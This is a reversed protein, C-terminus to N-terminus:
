ELVKKKKKSFALVLFRIKWSITIKNVNSWAKSEGLKSTELRSTSFWENQVEAIWDCFSGM